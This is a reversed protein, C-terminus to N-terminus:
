ATIVEHDRSFLGNCIIVLISEIVQQQDNAASPSM